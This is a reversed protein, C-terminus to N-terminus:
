PQWYVSTHTWEETNDDYEDNIADAAPQRLLNYAGIESIEDAFAREHLLLRLRQVQADNEEIRDHYLAKCHEIEALIAQRQMDMDLDFFPQPVREPAKPVAAVSPASRYSRFVHRVGHDLVKTVYDAVARRVSRARDDAALEFAMSRAAEDDMAHLEAQQMASPRPTAAPSSKVVLAYVDSEYSAAVLETRRKTAVLSMFDGDVHGSKASKRRLRLVSSGMKTQARKARIRSSHDRSVFNGGIGHLVQVVAAMVRKELNTAAIHTAIAVDKPVRLSEATKTISLVSEAEHTFTRHHAIWESVLAAHRRSALKTLATALSANCQAADISTHVVALHNTDLRLWAFAAYAISLMECAIRIQLVSGTRSKAEAIAMTAQRLATNATHSAFAKVVHLPELSLLVFRDRDSESHWGDEARTYSSQSKAENLLTFHECARTFDTVADDYFQLTLSKIFSQIYRDGLARAGFCRYVWASEHDGINAYEAALRTVTLCAMNFDDDSLTSKLTHGSKEHKSLQGALCDIEMKALAFQRGYIRDQTAISPIFKPRSPAVAVSAWAQKKKPSDIRTKPSDARTKTNPRSPEVPALPKPPSMPAQITLTQFTVKIPSEPKALRPSRLPRVPSKLPPAHCTRQTIIKPFPQTYPCSRNADKHLAQISQPSSIDYDYRITDLVLRHDRAPTPGVKLAHWKVQSEADGVLAFAKAPPSRKRFAM